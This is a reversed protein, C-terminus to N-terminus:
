DLVLFTLMMLLECLEGRIFQFKLFCNTEIQVTRIKQQPIDLIPMCSITSFNMTGDWQQNMQRTHECRIQEICTHLADTFVSSSYGSLQMRSFQFM